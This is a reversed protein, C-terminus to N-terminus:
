GEESNLGDMYDKIQTLANRNPRANNTTNLTGPKKYEVVVRNFLRDIRGRRKGDDKQWVVSREGLPEWHLGSQEAFDKFVFDCQMAFQAENGRSKQAAEGIARAIDPAKNRITNLTEQG